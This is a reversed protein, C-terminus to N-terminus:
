IWTQGMCPFCSLDRVTRGPLRDTLEQPVTLSGTLRMLGTLGTKQGTLSERILDEKRLDEKRLDEKTLDEKTLDEKMLNEKAPNEITLDKKILGEEM